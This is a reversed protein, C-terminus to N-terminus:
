LAQAKWCSASVIIRRILWSLQQLRLLFARSRHVACRIPFGRPPSSFTFGSDTQVSIDPQQRLEFVGIVFRIGTDPVIDAFPCLPNAIRKALIETQRLDCVPIRILRQRPKRVNINFCSCVGPQCVIRVHALELLECDRLSRLKGAHPQVVVVIGIDASFDFVAFECITASDDPTKNRDPIQFDHFLFSKRIHHFM